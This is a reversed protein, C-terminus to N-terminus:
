FWDKIFILWWRTNHTWSIIFEDRPAADPIPSNHYLPIYESSGRGGVEDCAAEPSLHCSICVYLEASILPTIFFTGKFWNKSVFISM